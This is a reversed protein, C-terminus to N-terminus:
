YNTIKLYSKLDPRNNVRKARNLSKLYCNKNSINFTIGKCDNSKQCKELCNKETSNEYKQIDSGNFDVNDYLQYNSFIDFKSSVPELAHEGADDYGLPYDISTKKIFSYGVPYENQSWYYKGDIHGSSRGLSPASNLGGEIMYRLRYTKYIRRVNPGLRLEEPYGSFLKNKIDKEYMKEGSFEKMENLYPFYYVTNDTKDTKDTKNSPKRYKIELVEGSHREAYYIDFKYLQNKQMNMETDIRQTAAKLGEESYILSENIFLQCNDDVNVTFKYTGSEDPKYYTTFHYRLDKFPATWAPDGKLDRVFNIGNIYGSYQRERLCSTDLLANYIKIESITGKFPNCNCSKAAQIGVNYKATNKNINGSVGFVNNSIYSFSQSNGSKKEVVLISIRCKGKYNNDGANNRNSTNEVQSNWSVAITYKKKNELKPLKSKYADRFANFSTYGAYPVVYGDVLNIGIDYGYKSFIGQHGSNYDYSYVDLIVTLPDHHTSHGLYVPGGKEFGSYTRYKGTYKDKDKFEPEYKEMFRGLQLKNLSCTDPEEYKTRKIKEFSRVGNNNDNLKNGLIPDPIVPLNENDETQKLMHTIYTGDNDLQKIDFGIYNSNDDCMKKAEKFTKRGVNEYVNKYILKGDKKYKYKEEYILSNGKFTKFRLPGLHMIYDNEILKEFYKDANDTDNEIHVQRNNRGEIRRNPINTMRFAYKGEKHKREDLDLHNVYTFRLRGKTDSHYCWNNFIIGGFGTTTINNYVDSFSINARNLVGEKGDLGHIVTKGYKNEKGDNGRDFFNPNLCEINFYNNKISLRYIVTTLNGQYDKINKRFIFKQGDYLKLDHIYKIINEKGVGLENIIDNEAHIFAKCEKLTSKKTNPVDTTGCYSNLLSNKIDNIKSSYEAENFKKEPFVKIITNSLDNGYKDLTGKVICEASYKNEIFDTKELNTFIYKIMMDQAVDSKVFLYYTDNVKNKRLFFKLKSEKDSKINIYRVVSINNGSLIM